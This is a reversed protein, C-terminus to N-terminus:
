SEWDWCPRENSDKKRSGMGVPLLLLRDLSAAQGSSGATLRLPWYSVRTLPSRLDSGCATESQHLRLRHPQTPHDCGLALRHCAQLPM